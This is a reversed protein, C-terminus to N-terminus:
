INIYVDQIFYYLVERACWRFPTTEFMERIGFAQPLYQTWTGSVIAASHDNNTKNNSNSDPDM